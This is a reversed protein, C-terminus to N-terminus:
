LQVVHARTIKWTGSSLQGVMYYGRYMTKVDANSTAVLTIFVQVTGDPQPVLSDFTIDDHKTNAFGREFDNYTQPNNAWLNYARPYDKCNIAAFYQEIVSQAQQEPTLTPPQTATPTPIPTSPAPQGGMPTPQTTMSTPQTVSINPQTQNPNSSSLAQHSSLFYLMGSVAIVLAFASVLLTYRQYRARASSASFYIPPTPPVGVDLIPPKPSQDVAVTPLLLLPQGSGTAAAISQLRLKVVSMSTPRKNEDLHLMQEILKVLETPLEQSLMQLPPLRFPTSAPHYASLLHYLVAGLSYIDSQPTTQAKGYQEPSAYGMSGYVSTDKAQGPKFLRAIGFDILYIHGDSTRMINSPKLDRFIIPPQQAHLYGLVTCLQMGIQLTEQLPLKGSPAKKLYADLTEGHIFSMVLYWRGCEGFHDYINPLHPNQLCALLLAEQRFANAAKSIEQTNLGSQRMEKLAVKRQGLQTDEAEYVAGMGGQGVLRVIRYRQKLLVNPLLQGTEMNFVTPAVNEQLTCGCARCFTAQLSNTAGCFSCLISTPM